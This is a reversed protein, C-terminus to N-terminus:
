ELRSVKIKQDIRKDRKLRAPKIKEEKDRISKKFTNVGGGKWKMAKKKQVSFRGRSTRLHQKQTGTKKENEKKPM